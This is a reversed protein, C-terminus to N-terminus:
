LGARRFLQVAVALCLVVGHAILWPAILTSM